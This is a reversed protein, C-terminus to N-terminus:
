NWLYDYNCEDNSSPTVSTYWEEPDMVHQMGTVHDLGLAHGLEHSVIHARNEYAGDDMHYENLSIEDSGIYDYDYQGWWILWYNDVDQITLDQYTYITDPLIDIPNLSNWADRADDWEWSYKTSGGWRIEGSDVASYGEVSLPNCTARAFGLPLCLLAMFVGGIFLKKQM